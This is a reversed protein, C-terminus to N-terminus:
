VSENCQKAKKEFKPMKQLLSSTIGVHLSRSLSVNPGYWLNHVPLSVLWLECVIDAM